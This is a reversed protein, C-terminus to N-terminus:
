RKEYVSYLRSRNEFGVFVTVLAVFKVGKPPRPAVYHLLGVRSGVGVVDLGRELCLRASPLRYDGYKAADAETYPPDALVGFWASGDKRLPLPEGTIDWVFDPGLDPNSALTQDLDGFGDYPYLDVKGSCVHLVPDDLHVGLLQRARHLFGAPYAGYYKVKSRALIWTDCIPRYSM